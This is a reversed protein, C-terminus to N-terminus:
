TIEIILDPYFKTKRKSLYHMTMRKVIHYTFEFSEVYIYMTIFM